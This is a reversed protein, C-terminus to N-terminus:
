ITNAQLLLLLLLLYRDIELFLTAVLYGSLLLAVEEVVAVEAIIWKPLAPLWKIIPDFLNANKRTRLLSLPGSHVDQACCVHASIYFSLSATRVYACVHESIYIYTHTHGSFSNKSQFDRLIRFGFREAKLAM